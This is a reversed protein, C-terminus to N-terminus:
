SAGCHVALPTNQKIYVGQDDSINSAEAADLHEQEMADMIYLICTM